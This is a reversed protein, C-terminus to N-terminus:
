FINFSVDEVGSGKNIKLPVFTDKLKNISLPNSDMIVNVKNIYTEFTKFLKQIQSALKQGIKTFSNDFANATKSTNYVYVKNTTVIPPLDTSRIKSKEIIDRVVNWTKKIERTCKLYNTPTIYKTQKRKLQKM